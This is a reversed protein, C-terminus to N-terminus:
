RRSKVVIKRTNKNIFDFKIWVTNRPLIKKVREAWEIAVINKPDAIIEKFGLRLIEKAERIRYCDIHVFYGPRPRGLKFRKLIVFTPSTIKDKVGLGKAFGQLFTTKGGGLDGKLGLVFGRKLPRSELVEKALLKGLKKTQNPSKTIIEM